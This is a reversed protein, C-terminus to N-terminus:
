CWASRDQDSRGMNFAKDSNKLDAMRRPKVIKLSLNAYPDTGEPSRSILSQIAPEKAVPATDSQYVVQVGCAEALAATGNEIILVDHGFRRWAAIQGEAMAEGDRFFDKFSSVGMM